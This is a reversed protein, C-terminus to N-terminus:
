KTLAEDLNFIQSTVITWAALEPPPINGAPKSEGQAILKAAEDPNKEYYGKASTETEVLTKVEEPALARGLLLQSIAQFRASQDAHNLIAHDALQRFGEVFQPDNMTVFAQLPTNTRERRVCFSERSPANLIEMSPPPATRKWITYLSRRYLSEGSDQTYIRTNSEKMAVDSWVGDPQYPKVSPGGIKPSLLESQQLVADRLQEAELRFRPARALLRNAPDIELKQPDVKASQRYTASTVMLKAMHRYDWGSEVFEVALWDLLKPHTPRAGMIGFDEATEVIATGFIYGWLRNVTVRAPLPNRKDVLWQGLGLRNKPMEATMPPFVAPVEAAVKEGKDAYSGRSLVHAFPVTDAKEQMILTVAGRTKIQAQEAQLAAIKTKIEKTVPDHAALFNQYLAENQQPSRQDAPLALINQLPVRQALAEIEKEDLLRQYIRLDQIATTGIINSGGTRAGITFPVATQISDGVAAATVSNATIKGNVFISLTENSPKTGDFRIAVHSWQGSPLTANSVIKSAKDPWNDIVHIAPKGAELWFDWGRYNEAHNMRAFVAGNPAGEVYVFTSYTFSDTRKFNAIDGITIVQTNALLAKGAPGDRRQVPAPNEYPVGSLTGHIPGESEDLPLHAILTPDVANAPQAPQAVLWKDFDVKANKAREVMATNQAILEADIAIIRPRDALNPAFINPPHEANNGDLSSMPTNRFFATLQYFDKTSIPDFKHDHCAACQTTIGLWVASMTSVRDTAYIADYEEGIAGGEGTTPLCRQFGTAIKQELTANPLLDGGFQEITFQDWPMNKKFADIVWDRYPWISRYNDIHIGHTDAYRAADLWQRAFHEAGQTSALMTDAADSLAKDADTAYAKEFADLAAPLPPLGTLDFSLRRYLRRPNEVPNPALQNAEIKELVFADIPNKVWGKEKPEPITPRQPPILSWHPEYKAGQEIWKELLALQEPKIDKHAEPPPMRLDPDKEKIFQIMTSNAPDGVKIVPKGDERPAFAYEAADLRLPEKKPERTGSDPGHCHYCTDAFIPQIHENFSITDPLKLAPPAAQLPTAIQDSAHAATEQKKCSLMFSMLTM